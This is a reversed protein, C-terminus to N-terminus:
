GPKEERMAVTREKTTETKVAEGYRGRSFGVRENQKIIRCGEYFIVM